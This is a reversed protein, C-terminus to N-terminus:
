AKTSRSSKLISGAIVSPRRRICSSPSKLYKGSADIGIISRAGPLFGGARAFPELLLHHYSWFHLQAAKSKKGKSIAIMIMLALFWDPIVPKRGPGSRALQKAADRCLPEAVAIMERLINDTHDM